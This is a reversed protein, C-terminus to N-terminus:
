GRIFSEPPTPGWLNVAGTRGSVPDWVGPQYTQEDAIHAAEAQLEWRIGWPDVFYVFISNGPGHRGPGFEVEVKQQEFHNLMRLVDDWSGIEFGIHHLGRAASQVLAVTAHESNCRVWYFQGPIQDSLRFDMYRQWWQASAGADGSKVNIHSLKVLNAPPTGTPRAVPAEPAVLECVYGDPDLLRLASGHLPEFLAPGDTAVGRRGLEAAVATLASTDSVTLAYHDLRTAEGPYLVIEHRAVVPAGTPMTSMVIAGTTRDDRTIGLGLVRAYYAATERPDRVRLTVHNFGVIPLREAM